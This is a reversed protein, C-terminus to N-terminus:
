GKLTVTARWAEDLTLFWTKGDVQCLPNQNVHDPYKAAFPLGNPDNALSVSPAFAFDRLNGTRLFLSVAFFDQTVFKCSSTPYDRGTSHILRAYKTDTGWLSKVEVKRTAGDKEVEFDYNPYIGLHRAKDEPMRRVHFGADTLIVALESEVLASLVKAAAGYQDIELFDAPNLETLAKELDKRTNGVYIEGLAVSNQEDVAVIRGKVIERWPDGRNVHGEPVFKGTRGVMMIEQNTSDIDVEFSGRWHKQGDLRIITKDLKRIPVHLPCLVKVLASPEIEGYRLTLTRFLQQYDTGSPDGVQRTQRRVCHSAHQGGSESSHSDIPSHTPQAKGPQGPM